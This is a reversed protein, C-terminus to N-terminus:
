STFLNNTSTCILGWRLFLRSSSIRQHFYNSPSPTHHQQLVSCCWRVRWKCECPNQCPEHIMFHDWKNPYEDVNYPPPDKPFCFVFPFALPSGFIWLVDSAREACGSFDDLRNALCACRQPWVLVNCLSPAISRISVLRLIGHHKM